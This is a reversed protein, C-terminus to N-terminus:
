ETQERDRLDVRRIKGSSTKPLDAVFAVERPYEYAALRERARQQLEERLDDDGTAGPVLEVFAKIREGRTDDPVGVVGVQEVAPHDLLVQEVELPGVRYGATIIVDDARSEFWVYGDADRTVLDDTLYWGDHRKAATAEPRNWYEAFFVREDHPRVALEGLEGPPLEERTEPDLVALDYGPLAKGMSGPRVDFWRAANAVVLNLETQGYYEDIAVDDLAEAAWDLIEPTLPEGASAVTELALDAPPTESMLMRLATPPILAHTVGFRDLVDFAASPDFGAMPAAVVTGGYHWTGLLLGGLASGWAWDAPTWCVANAGLGGDFFTHAAAARGLWVAHRHRVGKPPGTSGSTYMIASDTAPTSEYPAYEPDHDAVVRDYALVDCDLPETADGRDHEGAFLPHEDLAVATELAPCETSAAALAARVSPDFVVARAEADDLRYALADQGFLTTLPVTVAGLKWCAMHAIPTEPRQPAVVGVRDGPEVGRAALANALRGSADDIDRYTFREGTAADLLAVRDSPGPSEHKRLCDVAPNFTEPLAWEFETRAREYTDYDPLVHWPM